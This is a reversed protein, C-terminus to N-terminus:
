AGDQQHGAQCRPKRQDREDHRHRHGEKNDVTARQAALATALHGENIQSPEHREKDRPRPPIREIM